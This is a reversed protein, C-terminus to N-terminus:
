NSSGTVEHWVDDNGLMYVFTVGADYAISGAACRGSVGTGDTSSTPLNAVDSASDILYEKRLPNVYGAGIKLLTIM